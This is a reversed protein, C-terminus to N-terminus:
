GPLPILELDRIEIYTQERLRQVLRELMKQQQIQIRINERTDEFTWEGGPSSALLKGVIWFGGGPVAPSEIRVPGLIDGVQAFPLTDRYGPPLQDQPYDILESQQSPDGHAGILSDIDAGARLAATVDTAVRDAREIDADTVEPRVLIHKASRENGRIRELKIVHFGVQTEVIDSVDGTRMDFLAEEFEPLLQGRRVWGLEGGRERSAPDESYERALRAFDEGSRVRSLAEEAREEAILRADDTPRPTIVVQKLTVTAPKPPLTAKQAEFVERIEEESVAVPQAESMKTGVYRQVLMAGREQQSLWIRFEPPTVGRARLAEEFEQQSRFQGRIANLRRDVAEDLETDSVTIGDREAHVVVLVEDVKRELAEEMFKQLSDPDEPLQAGQARLQVIYEALESQLIVTDAVVAVIRDVLESPDQQSAVAATPGALGFFVTVITGGTVACRALKRSHM